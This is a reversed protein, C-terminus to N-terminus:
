KTPKSLTGVSRWNLTVTVSGTNDTILFTEGSAVSFHFGVHNDTSGGAQPRLVTTLGSHTITLKFDTVPTKTAYLNVFGDSTATYTTGAALTAADADETTWASFALSDDVYKKNALDADTTPAASTAMQSSDGLTAVGSVTLTGAAVVNGTAGAVTFKNTNFTIDSTASGILDDGAGLTISGNFTSTGSVTFGASSFLDGDKTFQLQVGDESTFAMEPQSGGDIVQLHGENTSSAGAAAEEQFTIVEHKGSQVGASANVFEHDQNIATVLDSWNTLIEPQSNRLSTAASPKDKDFVQVFVVPLINRIQQSYRFGVFVSSWVCLLALFLTTKNKKMKVLVEKQGRAAM